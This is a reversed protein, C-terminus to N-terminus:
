SLCWDKWSQLPEFVFIHHADLTSCDAHEAAQTDTKRAPTVALGWFFSISARRNADAAYEKGPHTRVRGAACNM